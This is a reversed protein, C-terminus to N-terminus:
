ATATKKGFKDLAQRLAPHDAAYDDLSLGRVAAEWAQKLSEVGAAPGGPHGQIGGGAIYMFDATGTLRYTDPLQGAWMGSGIVPLVRDAPAFLPTLCQSVANVVSDDSEWYKNRIGNVHLQDVGVLRWFKNYANFELGLLPCRTLMGWGNRHAHIPLSCRQRLYRVGAYGVQNINVMVCTGGAQVVADHRRVMQEPDDSSVNFAYMVPKGTRAAVDHIVAMVAAVRQEVTSYPPNTMKEDDKIFDVGAEALTRVIAATQEPLLGVNPKIISAIVPRDHVNTLRRTGAVGFQPGPHADAFAPPLEIDVLRIGSLEKLEMVGGAVVALLTALETGTVDLPVTIVVEARHHPQSVAERYPLTPLEVTELARVSDVAASFRRKLAETEGPVRTFTGASMAAAVMGAAQEPPYPSEILYTCRIIDATTM